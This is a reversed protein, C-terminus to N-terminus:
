STPKGPLETTFFIGALAPSGIEIGPIPLDEPSPIAFWQWLGAHLTGHVSSGLQSCDM